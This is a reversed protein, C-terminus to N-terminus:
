EIKRVKKFRRRQTSSHTSATELLNGNNDGDRKGLAQLLDDVNRIYPRDREKEREREGGGGGGGM